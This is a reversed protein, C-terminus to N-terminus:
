STGDHEGSRGNGADINMAGIRESIGGAITAALPAVTGRPSETRRQQESGHLTTLAAQVANALADAPMRPALPADLVLRGIRIHLVRPNM